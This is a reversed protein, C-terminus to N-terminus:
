RSVTEVIKFKGFMFGRKPETSSSLYMDYFYDGGRIDMQSHSKKITFIGNGFVISGDVTKFELVLNYDNPKSRVQLTAGTYLGFNFNGLYTEGSYVDTEIQKNLTRNREVSEIDYEVSDSLDISNAM